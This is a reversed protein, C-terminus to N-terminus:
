VQNHGIHLHLISKMKPGFLEYIASGKQSPSHVACAILCVYNLRQHHLVDVFTLSNPKDATILPSGRGDMDIARSSHSYTDVAVHSCRAYGFLVTGLDDAADVM